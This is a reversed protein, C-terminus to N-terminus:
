PRLATAKWVRLRAELSLKPPSEDASLESGTNRTPPDTRYSPDEAEPAAWRPTYAPLLPPNM